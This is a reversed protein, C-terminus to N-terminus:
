SGKIGEKFFLPSFLNSIHKPIVRAKRVFSFVEELEVLDVQKLELEQEEPTKHCALDKKM